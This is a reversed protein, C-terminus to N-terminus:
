RRQREQLLREAERRVPGPITKIRVIGALDRLLLDPLLGRTLFVPTNPNRILALRVQYRVRWKPSRGVLSLVHPPTEASNTIVLLDEEVVQPNLLLAEIVRPNQEKRLTLIVGRGAIRALTLREGLTMTEMLDLIMNEAMQRLQPALRFNKSVQLLDQWFLQRILTQALARPTQPHNVIAVQVAHKRLLERNRSIAQIDQETAKLNRLTRLAAYLADTSM